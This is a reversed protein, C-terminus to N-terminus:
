GKALSAYIDPHVLAEGQMTQDHTNYFSTMIKIKTWDIGVTKELWVDYNEDFKWLKWEYPVKVQDCMSYVRHDEVEEFTKSM